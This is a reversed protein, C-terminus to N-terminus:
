LLLHIVKCHLILHLSQMYNELASGWLNDVDSLPIAENNDDDDVAYVRGSSSM